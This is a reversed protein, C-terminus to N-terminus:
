SEILFIEIEKVTFYQEGTFVQQGNIGTDNTFASGLITYSSANGNCGNAIYIDHNYGFTPGYYSNCYIANASSALAFKRGESGRPNKVTFLFSSQSSDAKYGSYSDWAIPTFGGFVFGKTTEIVTLTNSKGDCKEHFNSAGFGDRSGRYLLTWGKLPLDRLCVPIMPLILSDVRLPYRRVRLDDSSDGRLHSIVKLWIDECLDEFSVEDVFLTLGEKSLFSIEIYGLFESRNLELDLLLRLLSDESEVALCESSLLRHLTQPDLFRLEDISYAYFKSACRDVTASDFVTKPQVAARTSSALSQSQSQSQSHVSSDSKLSSLLVLALRENGL